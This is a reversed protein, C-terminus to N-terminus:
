SRRHAKLHSTQAIAALLSPCCALNICAGANVRRAFKPQGHREAGNVVGSQIKLEPTSPLVPPPAPHKAPWAPTERDLCPPTRIALQRSKSLQPGQSPSVCAYGLLLRPRQTGLAQCHIGRSNRLRWGVMRIRRGVMRDRSGIMRDRSGIMRDRSGVMRDRWGIMRYRWGIM